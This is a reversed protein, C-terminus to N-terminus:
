LVEAAISVLVKTVPHDPYHLVFLGSMGMLMIEDAYPIFEAMDCQYTQKLQKKVEDTSFLPEVQSAILVTKNVELALGVDVIVGTSQYDRQDLLLMLILTDAMAISLMSFVTDDSIMAHTDFILVDLGLQQALAMLGDMFLSIDYRGRTDWPIGPLEKSSPILFLNGYGAQATDGLVQQSIDYVIQDRECRGFLYDNLTYSIHDDQIGFMDRLCGCQLDADVVGVHLGAKAMLVAMNAVFTSKGPGERASHVVITKIM